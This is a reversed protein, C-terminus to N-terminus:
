ASPDSHLHRPRNRAIPLRHILVNPRNITLAASAFRDTMFILTASRGRRVAGDINFIVSVTGRKPRGAFLHAPFNSKFGADRARDLTVIGIRM